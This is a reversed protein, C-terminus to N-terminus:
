YGNRSVSIRLQTKTNIGDFDWSLLQFFFTLTFVTYSFGTALKCFEFMYNYNINLKKYTKARTIM